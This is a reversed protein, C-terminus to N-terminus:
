TASSDSHLENLSVGFADAAAVVVDTLLAEQDADFLADLAHGVADDSFHPAQAPTLGFAAPAFGAVVEAQRYIPEREVLLSRLLVMLARAFPLRVRRGASPVFRALRAELDLREIFANVLPLPGLREFRLATDALFGPPGAQRSQM